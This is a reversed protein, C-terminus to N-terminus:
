GLPADLHARQLVEVVRRRVEPSDGGDGEIKWRQNKTLQMEAMLDQDLPDNVGQLQNLHQYFPGM